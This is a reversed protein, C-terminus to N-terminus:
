YIYEACYYNAPACETAHADCINMALNAAQPGDNEGYGYAYAISAYSKGYDIAVCGSNACVYHDCDDHGCYKQASLLAANQSGGQAWGYELTSTSVALCVWYEQNDVAPRAVASQGNVSSAPHPPSIGQPASYGFGDQKKPSTPTGFVGLISSLATAALIFTSKM